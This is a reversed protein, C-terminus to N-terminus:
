ERGSEDKPNFGYRKELYSFSQKPYAGFVWDLFRNVVTQDIETPPAVVARYGYTSGTVKYLKRDITTLVFREIVGMKHLASVTHRISASPIGDKKARAILQGASQPGYELLYAVVDQQVSGLFKFYREPEATGVTINETLIAMYFYLM